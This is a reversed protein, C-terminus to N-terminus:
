EYAKQESFFSSWEELVDSLTVKEGFVIVDGYTVARSNNEKLRENFWPENIIIHAGNKRAEITLQQIRQASIYTNEQEEGGSKRYMPTTNLKDSEGSGTLGSNHAYTFRGKSDHNHNYRYELEAQTMKAWSIAARIEMDRQQQRLEKIKRSMLEPTWNTGM